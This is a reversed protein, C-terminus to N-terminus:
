SFGIGLSKGIDFSPGSGIGKKGFGFEGFSCGISKKVLGFKGFCFGVSKKGLSIGIGFAELFQCFYRSRFRSMEIDKVIKPSIMELYKGGKGERNKM